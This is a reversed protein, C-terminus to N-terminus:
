IWCVESACIADYAVAIGVTSFEEDLAKLLEAALVEGEFCQHLVDSLHMNVSGVILDNAKTWRIYHAVQANTSKSDISDPKTIEMVWTHGTSQLYAKM